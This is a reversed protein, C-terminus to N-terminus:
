SVLEVLKPAIDELALVGEAMGGDVVAKAKGWVVAGGKEEDLVGAGSERAGEGGLGGDRGTGTRGGIKRQGGM